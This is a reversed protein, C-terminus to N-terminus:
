KLQDLFGFLEQYVVRENLHTDSFSIAAESLRRRAKPNALLRLLHDAFTEDDDAVLVSREVGAPLGEIGKSTTVLAKGRALAEVSKIKLGTGIWAPNIVVAAEAYDDEVSEKHGLFTVNDFEESLFARYVYGCVHLHARPYRRCIQPWVSLLFRRLGDINAGNYGGVYLLRGDVPIAGRPRTGFGTSGVTLVQLGPCMSKILDAEAAQIAIVADFQNFIHSEEDRTIRLPFDMGRSAFEELRKHQIDHTDLLRAVGNYLSRAAPYLWIYEVILAKWSYQASLDAVIRDLGQPYRQWYNMLLPRLTRGLWRSALEEAPPIAMKKGIKDILRVTRRVANRTRTKIGSGNYVHLADVHSRCINKQRKDMLASVLLHVLWGKGRLVNILEAIRQNDGSRAPYPVTDCVIAVHPQQDPNPM